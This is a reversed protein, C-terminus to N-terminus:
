AVNAHRAHTFPPLLYYSVLAPVFDTISPTHLSDAPAIAVGNGPANEACGRLAGAVEGQHEGLIADSPSEVNVRQDGHREKSSTRSAFFHVVLVTPLRIARYGVKLPARPFEVVLMPTPDQTSSAADVVVLRPQSRRIDALYATAASGTLRLAGDSFGEPELLGAHMRDHMPLGPAM